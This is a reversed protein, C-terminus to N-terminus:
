SADSAKTSDSGFLWKLVSFVKQLLSFHSICLNVVFCLKWDFKLTLLQDSLFYYFICMSRHMQYPNFSFCSKPNLFYCIRVPLPLLFSYKNVYFTFPNIFTYYKNTAHKLRFNLSNIASTMLLQPEITTVFGNILTPVCNHFKSITQTRFLLFYYSIITM